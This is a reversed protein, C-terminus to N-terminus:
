DDSIIQDIQYILRSTIEEVEKEIQNNGFHSEQIDKKPVNKLTMYEDSILLSTLISIKLPDKLNVSSHILESKGQIFDILEQIYQPDENSQITISTGFLNITIKENKQNM